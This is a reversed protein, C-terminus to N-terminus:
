KAEPHFVAHCDDCSQALKTMAKAAAPEDRKHIAANVAGAHDRMAQSFAYWQKVQAPSKAESTDAITGQAIAAIAATYGATDKAKSIFKEGKIKLKLKNNILPVQKMLEPLAAVKEWKLEGGTPDKGEAVEKLAAVAKKASQFDKTAAAQQAAKILGGAIAKYKNPQDHMGLTLAIVALTSGDKAVKGESDKYEQEDAVAKGLEKIYLDVQGVL